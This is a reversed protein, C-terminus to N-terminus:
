VEFVVPEQFLRVPKSEKTDFVLTRPGEMNLREKGFSDFGQDTNHPTASLLLLTVIAGKCRRCGVGATLADEKITKTNRHQLKHNSSRHAAKAPRVRSKAAEFPISTQTRCIDEILFTFM